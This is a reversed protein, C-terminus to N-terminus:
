LGWAGKPERLPGGSTAKKFNSATLGKANRRPKAPPKPEIFHSPAKEAEAEEKAPHVYGDRPKEGALVRALSSVNFFELREGNDDATVRALFFDYIDDHTLKRKKFRHSNRRFYEMSFRRMLSFITVGELWVGYQNKARATTVPSSLIRQWNQSEGGLAVAFVAPPITNSGAYEKAEELTM